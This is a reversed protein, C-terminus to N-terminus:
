KLSKSFLTSAEFSEENDEVMEILAVNTIRGAITDIRPLCYEYAESLKEIPQKNMLTCHPIWQDPLYYPYADAKYKHFCDHHSTHFDLLEKTVIPSLFLTPYNLFTGISNFTVDIGQKNEYCNSMLQKFDIKNINYYHGLTLHPKGEQVQTSNTLSRDSLETWINKIYRDTDEDFLGIVWYM